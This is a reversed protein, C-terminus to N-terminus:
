EIRVSFAHAGVVAEFPGTGEGDNEEDKGELKSASHNCQSTQMASQVARAGSVNPETQEPM